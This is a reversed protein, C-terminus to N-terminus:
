CRFGSRTSGLSHRARGCSSRSRDRSRRGPAQVPEAAAGLVAPITELLTLLNSPGVIDVACAFVDPTFTAGVLASYGGYSGGYIAVRAPDAIARPSWTRGRRGGPRRADQAGWESDGANLFEKGYGTSGRFNVQVCLYGRNALWQAEPDFGWPRTGVPRRPREARHRAAPTRRASIDPLRPDRPRRPLSVLVAGDEGPQLEALQPQHHFLFRSEGTDRDFLNYTVPGNDANYATIWRRDAHDRGAFVLDGPHAAVMAAVDDALTLDVM